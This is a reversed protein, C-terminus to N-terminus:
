HAAIKTARNCCLQVRILGRKARASKKISHDFVANKAEIQIFCFISNELVRLLSLFDAPVTLTWLRFLAEAFLNATFRM